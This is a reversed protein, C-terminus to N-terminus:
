CGAARTTTTSTRRAPARHPRQHPAHAARGPGRDSGTDNEDKGFQQRARAKREATMSMAVPCPLLRVGAIRGPRRGRRPADARGARRRQRLAARRAAPALFDLRLERGYLDGDFDLLYAEVLVGRGTEFTPRVGVNIAAPRWRWEGDGRGGRPLRLRRPEPVVLADDPVLNATPFGLTAGASTATSSSAARDPVARRPLADAQTSTAPRSSAASTADLLRDRRRGRGAARRATEFATRRACCRRRRGAPPRLPLERRGVGAHAGLREVLM